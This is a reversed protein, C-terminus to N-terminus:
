DKESPPALAARLKQRARALQSKSTGADISLIRGIEAHTFGAIDHLTVISRYGPPLARLGESLALTAVPDPWDPAEPEAPPADEPLRRQERVVNVVIGGLWSSLASRGEFRDLTRIARVWAEQVVDEPNIRSRGALRRGLRLMRPNHRRYLQRFAAEGRDKLFAEILM